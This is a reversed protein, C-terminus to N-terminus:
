SGFGPPSQAGYLSTRIGDLFEGVGKIRDGKMFTMAVGIGIVPIAIKSLSFKFGLFSIIWFTTTTGLNAGMIVGIAQMLSLLRAHVFGVVM